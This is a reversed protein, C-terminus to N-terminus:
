TDGNLPLNITLNHRQILGNGVVMSSTLMHLHRSTKFFVFLINMVLWSVGSEM